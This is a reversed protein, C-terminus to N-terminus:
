AIDRFITDLNQALKRGETLARKYSKYVKQELDYQSKNNDEDIDIRVLYLYGEGEEEDVQIFDFQIETEFIYKIEKNGTVIDARIWEYTVTRNGLDEGDLNFNVEYEGNELKELVTIKMM